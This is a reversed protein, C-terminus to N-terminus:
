RVPGEAENNDLLLDDLGAGPGDVRCSRERTDYDPENDHHTQVRVQYRSEILVTCKINESGM